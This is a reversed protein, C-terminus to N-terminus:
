PGVPKYTEPPVWPIWGPWAQGAEIQAIYATNNIGDSVDLQYLTSRNEGGTAKQRLYLLNGGGPFQTAWSKNLKGEQYVSAINDDTGGYMGQWLKSYNMSGTTHQFLGLRNLVGEQQQYAFNDVAGTQNNYAMNLCNGRQHIKVMNDGLALGALGLVLALVLTVTLFKRM